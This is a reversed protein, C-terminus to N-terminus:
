MFLVLCITKSTANANTGRGVCGQSATLAFSLPDFTTVVSDLKTTLWRCGESTETRENRKSNALRRHEIVDGRGDSISDFAIRSKGDKSLDREWRASRLWTFTPGAAVKVIYNTWYSEPAYSFLPTPNPPCGLTAAWPPM